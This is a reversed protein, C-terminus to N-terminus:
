DHPSELKYKGKAAGNLAYDYGEITIVCWHKNRCEVIVEEAYFPWNGDFDNKKILKSRFKPNLKRELEDIATRKHVKKPTEKFRTTNVRYDTQGLKDPYLMAFDF